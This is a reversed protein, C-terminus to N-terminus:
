DYIEVIIGKDNYVWIDYKYGLEKASKQKLLVKEKNKKLTWTSKVEICRNQSKVYIDVFHRHKENLDDIYWLEPVETKKTIIDNENIKEKILKDLAYHEYGQVNIKNGSPFVYEKLLYANKSSKEAIEANQMAYEVGYKNIRTEKSKDKKDNSQLYFETGFKELCTNKVKKKCEATEAYNEVGYIELNNLIIKNKIVESQFPNECGYKNLCKKKIKEKRENCM